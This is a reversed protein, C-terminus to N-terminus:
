QYDVSTGSKQFHNFRDDAKYNNEFTGIVVPLCIVFNWTESKSFVNM